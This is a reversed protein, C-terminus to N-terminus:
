IDSKYRAVDEFRMCHDQNLSPPSQASNLAWRYICTMEGRESPCETHVLDYKRMMRKHIHIYVHHEHVDQEHLVNTEAVDHDRSGESFM